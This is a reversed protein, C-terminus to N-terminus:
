SDVNLIAFVELSGIFITKRAVSAARTRRTM